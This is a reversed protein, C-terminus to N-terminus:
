ASEGVYPAMAVRMQDAWPFPKGMSDIQVITSKADFRTQGACTAAFALNASTRGIRTVTLDLTLVDGHRSTAAFACSIQATPVASTQHMQEFPFGIHDFFAELLDNMMEFYRPYFVIGAPDCHRFLVKQTVIFM